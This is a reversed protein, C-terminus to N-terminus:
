VVAGKCSLEFRWLSLGKLELSSSRVLSPLDARIEDVVMRVLEHHGNLELWGGIGEPTTVLQCYLLNHADGFSVCSLEPKYGPSVPVGFALRYAKVFEVILAMESVRQPETM